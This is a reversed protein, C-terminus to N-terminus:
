HSAPDFPPRSIYRTTPAAPATPEPQCQRGSVSGQDGIRSRRQIRSSRRSSKSPTSGSSDRCCPSRHTAFSSRGPEAASGAGTGPPSLVPGPQNQERSVPQAAQAEDEGDRREAAQQENERGLEVTVLLVGVLAEDDVEDKRADEEDPEAHHHGADREAPSANEFAQSGADDVGRRGPLPEEHEERDRDADVQDGARLEGVLGDLVEVRRLEAAGRAVRLPGLVHAMAIRVVRADRAGLAVHGGTLPSPDFRLHVPRPLEELHEGLAVLQRGRGREHRALQHRRPLGALAAMPRLLDDRRPEDDKRRVGRVLLVRRRVGREHHEDAAAPHLADVVRM